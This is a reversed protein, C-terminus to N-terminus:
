SRTDTADRLPQSAVVSSRPEFQVPRTGNSYRAPESIAQGPVRAGSFIRAFTTLVLHEVQRATANNMTERLRRDLEALETGVLLNPQAELMMRVVLAFHRLLHGPPQNRARDSRCCLLRLGRVTAALAHSVGADRLAARAAWRALRTSYVGAFGRDNVLDLYRLAADLEGIRVLGQAVPDAAALCAATADIRGYGHKANHGDPDTALPLLDNRDALGADAVQRAPDVPSSTEEILAYLEALEIEPNNAIALALVGAVIASAGSSEAHGPRDDQTFPNAM